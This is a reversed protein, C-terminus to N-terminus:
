YLYYKKLAEYFYEFYKYTNFSKISFLILIIWHRKFLYLIYWRVPFQDLPEDGDLILEGRMRILTQDNQREKGKIQFIFLSYQIESRM